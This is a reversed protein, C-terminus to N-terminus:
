VRIIEVFFPVSRFCRTTLPFFYQFVTCPYYALERLSEGREYMELIDIDSYGTNTCYYGNICM